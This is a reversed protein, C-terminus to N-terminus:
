PHQLVIKIAGSARKSLFAKVAAKYESVPFRHTILDTPSIAGDLLLQAAVDFSTRGGAETAHCNIGVLRVEQCWVPSYDFKGPKFNIGVLVVTGGGRAWRLANHLSGDNGITDYVIDFGGLVIENGFYGKAYRGGTREAIQSYASGRDALAIAGLKEIVRQQFPYRVLCHVEVEPFMKRLVAVSLLGITGGGVVLVNSGAPPPAKLIGHVASATPELLVAANDDLAEPIKFPQTRHMVMYPSFGGGTAEVPLTKVGPNTCLMYNGAACQACPPNIEMQYCSPWDIRMAVRDGPVFGEVESGTEVVEGVLEHGLFKTRIGPMAASFCKPDMDMFMFHIDTGCLGCCRNRIKLWRPNPIRPEPIDRYRLTSFPGLAAHKSFLQAVQLMAVRVPNNEFYLAKM